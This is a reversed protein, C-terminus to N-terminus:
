RSTSHWASYYRRSTIPRCHSLPPVFSAWRIFTSMWQAMQVQPFPIAAFNVFNINTRVISHICEYRSEPSIIHSKRMLVPQLSDCRTVVSYWKRQTNSKISRALIIFVSSTKKKRFTRGARDDCQEGLWQTGPTMEMPSFYDKLASAFFSYIKVEAGSFAQLKHASSVNDKGATSHVM